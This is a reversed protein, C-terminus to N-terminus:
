RKLVKFAIDRGHKQFIALNIWALAFQEQLEVRDDGGFDYCEGFGADKALQIAVTKARQSGGAVFLDIGTDGYRPNEMNEFGTTNFCKAVDAGTIAQFAHFATPYPEPKKRIANTADIIIKGTLKGFQNAM